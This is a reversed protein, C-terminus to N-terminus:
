IQGTKMKQRYDQIHIYGWEDYWRCSGSDNMDCQVVPQNPLRPPLHAPPPPPRRGLSPFNMYYYWRQLIVKHGSVVPEALHITTPDCNGHSDMSNWVLARGKVPKVSINLEPFVTEGGQEVDRLYVLITAYRDRKEPGITCDTHLKYGVEKAYSTLQYKGGSEPNLGTAKYIRSDLVSAFKMEGSYFATSYSWKMDGQIQGSFSANLCYTGETFDEDTARYSIKADKLHAQLTKVNDFCLIPSIVSEDQSHRFHAGMLADCESHSLFNEIIYVNAHSNRNSFPLRKFTLQRSQLRLNRMQLSNLTSHQFQFSRKLDKSPTVTETTSQEFHKEQVKEFDETNTRKSLFHFLCAVGLVLVMLFSVLKWLGPMRETKVRISKSPANEAHFDRKRRTTALRKKTM